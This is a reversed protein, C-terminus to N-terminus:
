DKKKLDEIIQTIENIYDPNRALIDEIVPFIDLDDELVIPYSLRERKM